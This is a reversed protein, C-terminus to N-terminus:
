LLTVGWEHWGELIAWDLSSPGRDGVIGPHLIFCRFRQWVCDPIARKLFPAVIIDPPNAALRQELADDGTFVEVTVQHGADTLEVFFRQSLGNFASCLLFIHM